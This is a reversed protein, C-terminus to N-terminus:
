AYRKDHRINSASLLDLYVFKVNKRITPWLLGWAITSSSRRSACLIDAIITVGILELGEKSRQSPQLKQFFVYESFIKLYLALVGKKTAKCWKIQTDSKHMHSVRSYPLPRKWDVSRLPSFINTAEWIMNKRRYKGCITGGGSSQTIRYSIRAKRFM